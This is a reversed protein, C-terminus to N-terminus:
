LVNKWEKTLTYSGYEKPDIWGKTKADNPYFRNFKGLLQKASMKGWHKSIEGVEISKGVEGKALYALLLTFKKPGSKDTAYRKVFANKNLSFDIDIAQTTDANRKRAKAKGTSFVAKELKEIRRIIKNLERDM